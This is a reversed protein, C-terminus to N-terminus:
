NQILVVDENWYTNGGNKWDIQLKYRGSPIQSTPIFQQHNQSVVTFNRDNKDNAPCYLQISGSLNQDMSNQPYQITLGKESVSWQIPEDLSKARKTKNIKEQFQTEAEYYQDTVLDIKQRTSMGVLTLIMAVFGLYLITIGIGWNFKM